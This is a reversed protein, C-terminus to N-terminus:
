RREPLPRVGYEARGRLLSCVTVIAPQVGFGLVENKLMLGIRLLPRVGQKVVRVYQVTSV